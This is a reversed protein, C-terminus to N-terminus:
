PTLETINWEALLEIITSIFRNKSYTVCTGTKDRFKEIYYIYIYKKTQLHIHLKTVKTSSVNICCRKKLNREVLKLRLKETVM